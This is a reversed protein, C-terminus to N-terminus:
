QTGTLVETMERAVNHVLNKCGKISAEPAKKYIVKQMNIIIYRSWSTKQTVHDIRFCKMSPFMVINSFAKTLKNDL